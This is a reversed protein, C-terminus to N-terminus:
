PPLNDPTTLALPPLPPVTTPPPPAATAACGQATAPPITGAILPATTDQVTITQSAPSSNNCADAVTYTRTIVLPCTGASSDTHAVVLGANPTCNDSITLGLATM